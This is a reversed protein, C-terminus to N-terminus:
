GRQPKGGTAIGMRYDPEYGNGFFIPMMHMLTGDNKVSWMLGASSEDEVITYIFDGDPFGGM